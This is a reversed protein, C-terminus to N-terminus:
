IVRNILPQVKLIKVEKGDTNNNYLRIIVFKGSIFSKEFWHLLNKIKASGLISYTLDSSSATFRAGNYNMVRDMYTVSETEPDTINSVIYINGAILDIVEGNNIYKEVLNGNRDIFEKDYADSTLLNRMTNCYWTDNNYQLADAQKGNIPMLNIYGSCQTETYIMIKDITEKLLNNGNYCKTIWNVLELSYNDQGESFNFAFDIYSPKIPITQTIINHIVDDLYPTYKGINGGITNYVKNNSLLRTGDVIYTASRIPLYAIPLYSHKSVWMKEDFNYTLTFSRDYFAIFDNIVPYGAIGTLVDHIINYDSSPNIAIINLIDDEVVINYDADIGYDEFTAHLAITIGLAQESATGYAVFSGIGNSQGENLVISINQTIISFISNHAAGGTFVFRFASPYYGLDSIPLGTLTVVESLEKVPFFDKNRATIFLRGMDTLEYGLIVGKDKYINDITDMYAAVRFDSWLLPVGERAAIYTNINALLINYKFYEENFLLREKLFSYVDGQNIPTISENILYLKGKDKDLILAGFPTSILCEQNQVGVVGEQSDILEFPLRDFIDGKTLYADQNLTSLVDKIFAKFTTFRMGVYLAYGHALIKVIEGKNAPMDYYYRAPFQRWKLDISESKMALSRAIRKPFKVVFNEAKGWILPSIINNISNYDKNYLYNNGAQWMDIFTGIYTDPINPDPLIISIDTKPYYKEEKNIGEYRFGVNSVSEYPMTVIARKFSTYFDINTPDSEIKNMYMMYSYASIFTDGGYITQASQIANSPNVKIYRGTSAVRKTLFGLYVDTKYSCINYLILTDDVDAINTRTKIIFCDEKCLNDIDISANNNAPFYKITEVVNKDLSDCPTVIGQIGNWKGTDGTVGVTLVKTGDAGLNLERSIYRPLPNLQNSLSTFGHFRFENAGITPLEEWGKPHLISQDLITMDENGREYYFIEYGDVYPLIHNPIIVNDIRIGLAKTSYTGQVENLEEILLSIYKGIFSVDIMYDACDVKFYLQEGEALKVISLTTNLELPTQTTQYLINKTNGNIDWHEVRVHIEREGFISGIIFMYLKITVNQVCNATYVRGADTFNTILPDTPNLYLNLMQNQNPDNMDPTSYLVFDGDLNYLRAEIVRTYISPTLSTTVHSLGYEELKHLNPFKHHRVKKGAFTKGNISDPFWSPYEEHKNEWFSMDGSKTDAGLTSTDMIQYKLLNPDLELLDADLIADKDGTNAERGPLHFLAYVGTYILHLGILFGYPEGARFSKNYFITTGEKYSSRIGDLSVEKDRIWNVTIDNAYPQYDLVPLGTLGGLLLENNLTTLTKVKLYVANNSLLSTLDSPTTETLSSVVFNLTSASIPYKNYEYCQLVGNIKSIVAVYIYDYNRDINTIECRIGKNTSTNAACGDIDNFTSRDSDDIISIPNSKHMWPTGTGDSFGYALTLYYVGSRLNGNDIIPLINISAQSVVPFLELLIIKIPYEIAYTGTLTFPLNDINLIKPSVNNDTWAIILEGKHNYTFTGTIPFNSDFKLLPDNIVIGKRSSVIQCSVDDTCFLVYEDNCVIKGIQPFKTTISKSDYSFGPEIDITKHVVNRIMNLSNVWSAQRTNILKRDLVLGSTEM